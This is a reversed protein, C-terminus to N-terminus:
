DFLTTQWVDNNWLCNDRFCLANAEEICFAFIFKCHHMLAQESTRITAPCTQFPDLNAVEWLSIISGTKPPQPYWGDQEYSEKDSSDQAPIEQNM